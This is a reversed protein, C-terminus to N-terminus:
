HRSRARWRRTSAAANPLRVRLACCDPDPESASSRSSPRRDAPRQTTMWLRQDVVTRGTLLRRRRASDEPRVAEVGRLWM